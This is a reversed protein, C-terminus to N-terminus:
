LTCVYWSWSPCGRYYYFLIWQLALVYGEAERQLVEPSVNQYEMKNLYYDKKYSKFEKAFLKDSEEEATLTELGAPELAEEGFDDEDGFDFMELQTSEILANLDDKDFKM